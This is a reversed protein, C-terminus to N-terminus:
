PANIMFPNKIIWAHAPARSDRVASRTAAEATSSTNDIHCDAPAACAALVTVGRTATADADVATCAAVDM